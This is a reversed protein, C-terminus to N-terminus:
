RSIPVNGSWRIPVKRAGGLAPVGIAGDFALPVSRASRLTSLVNGLKAYAVKLDLELEGENNAGINMGGLSKGEVLQVGALKIGGTLGALKLAFDNDNAVKLGVVLRVGSLDVAKVALRNVRVKPLRPLTMKGHKSYPLSFLGLDVKGKLEYSVTKKSRLGDLGGLAKEYDIAFPLSVHSTGNAPVRIRRRTSGDFMPKGDLVLHYSVGHVSIGLPNPNDIGVVFDLQVGSLSVDRLKVADVVVHPEKIADKVPVCASLLLGVVLSLALRVIRYSM